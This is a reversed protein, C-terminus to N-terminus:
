LAAGFRWNCLTSHRHRGTNGLDVRRHVHLLFYAGPDTGVYGRPWPGMQARAGDQARRGIRHRLHHHFLDGNGPRGM